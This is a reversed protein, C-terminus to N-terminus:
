SVRIEAEERALVDESVSKGSQRQAAATRFADDPVVRGHEDILGSSLLHKQMQPKSLFTSLAPDTLAQYSDGGLVRPKLKPPKATM